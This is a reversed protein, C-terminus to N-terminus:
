VIKLVNAYAFQPSKEPFKVVLADQQREFELAVGSDLWTVQNIKQPYLSSMSGLNQILVKGDEPWKMVTAYLTQGKQTFRIDAASFKTRGENFGQGNLRAQNQTSPGEGYIKWPRTDYISESNLKMWGTIEGVTKRELEDISGDGRVPVNLLYNGNKSVVDVMTQVVMEPTKYAKRDFVSRDYHWNGLCTDTQWVHPMIDNAQGREIDWVM